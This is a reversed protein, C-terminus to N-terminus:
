PPNMFFQTEIKTNTPGDSEIAAIASASSERGCPGGGSANVAHALAFSPSVHLTCNPSLVRSPFHTADLSSLLLNNQMGFSMGGGGGGDQFTL